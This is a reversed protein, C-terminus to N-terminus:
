GGSDVNKLANEAEKAALWEKYNKDYHEKFTIPPKVIETFDDLTGLQELHGRKEANLKDLHEESFLFTQAKHNTVVRIGELLECAARMTLGYHSLARNYLRSLEKLPLGASWNSNHQKILAKMEDFIIEKTKMREYQGVSRGVELPKSGKKFM